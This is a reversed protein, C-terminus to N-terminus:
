MHATVDAAMKFTLGGPVEKLIDVVSRRESVLSQSVVVDVSEEVPFEHALALTLQRIDAQASPKNRQLRPKSLPKLNDKMEVLTEAFTM